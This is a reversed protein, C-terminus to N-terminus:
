CSRDRVTWAAKLQAAQDTLEDESLDSEEWDQADMKEQSMQQDQWAEAEMIQLLHDNEGGGCLAMDELLDDGCCSAKHDSGDFLSVLSGLTQRVLYYIGGIVMVAAQLFLVLWGDQHAQEARTTICCRRVHGSGVGSLSRKMDQNLSDCSREFRQIKSGSRPSIKQSGLVRKRALEPYM